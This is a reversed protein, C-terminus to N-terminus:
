NSLVIGESPMTEPELGSPYALLAGRAGKKRAGLQKQASATLRPTWASLRRLPLGAVIFNCIAAFAFNEKATCLAAAVSHRWVGQQRFGKTSRPMYALDERCLAPFIKACSGKLAASCRLAHLAHKKAASLAIQACLM